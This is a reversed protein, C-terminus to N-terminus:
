QPEFGECGFRFQWFGMRSIREHAVLLAWEFVKRGPFRYYTVLWATLTGIAFTGIGVGLALILTNSVYTWLVTELLHRWVDPAPKLAVGVITLIPLATVFAVALLGLFWGNFWQRWSAGANAPPTPQYTQEVM